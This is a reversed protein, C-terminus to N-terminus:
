PKKRILHNILFQRNEDKKILQNLFSKKGRVSKKAKRKSHLDLSAKVKKRLVVEVSQKKKKKKQKSKTEARISTLYKKLAKEERLTINKEKGLLSFKNKKASKKKSKLLAANKKKFGKGQSVNKKENLENKIRDIDLPLKPNNELTERGIQSKQYSLFTSFSKFNSTDALNNLTDNARSLHFDNSEGPPNPLFQDSNSELLTKVKSPVHSSFYQNIEMKKIRDDDNELRPTVMVQRRGRKANNESHGHQLFLKREKHLPDMKQDLSAMPENEETRVNSKWGQDIMGSLTGLGRTTALPTHGKSRRMFQQVKVKFNDNPTFLIKSMEPSAPQRRRSLSERKWKKRKADLNFLLSQKEEEWLEKNEILCRKCKKFDRKQEQMRRLEKKCLFLKEKLISVMKESVSANNSNSGFESDPNTPEKAKFISIPTRPKRNKNTSVTHIDQFSDCVSGTIKMETSKLTTERCKKVREISEVVDPQKPFVRPLIDEIDCAPKKRKKLKSFSIAHFVGCITKEPNAPTQNTPKQNLRTQLERIKREKQQLQGQMENRTSEMKADKERLMRDLRTKEQDLTAQLSKYEGELFAYAELKRDMQKSKQTEEEVLQKLSPIVSEKLNKLAATVSESKEREKGLQQKLSVIEKTKEEQNKPICKMIKDLEENILENRQSVENIQQSYKSITKSLDDNSTQLESIKNIIQPMNGLLSSGKTDLEPFTLQALNSDIKGEIRALLVDPWAEKPRDLNLLMHEGSYTWKGKLGCQKLLRQEAEETNSVLVDIKELLVKAMQKWKGSKQELKLYHDNISERTEETQVTKFSKAAQSVEMEEEKAELRRSMADLQRQKDALKSEYEDVLRGVTKQNLDNERLMRMAYEDTEEEEEEDRLREKIGGFKVVRQLKQNSLSLEKIERELGSIIDAMRALEQEKESFKSKETQLRTDWNKLEERQEICQGM